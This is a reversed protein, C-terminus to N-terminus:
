ELTVNRSFECSKRNKQKKILKSPEEIFLNVIFRTLPNELSSTMLKRDCFVGLFCMESIRKVNLMFWLVVFCFLRWNLITLKRVECRFWFFLFFYFLNALYFITGYKVNLYRRNKTCWCSKSNIKTDSLLKDHMYSNKFFCFIKISPSTHRSNVFFFRKNRNNIELKRNQRFQRPFTLIQVYKLGFNSFIITTVIPWPSFSIHTIQKQKAQTLNCKLRHRTFEM